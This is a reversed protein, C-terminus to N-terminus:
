RKRRRGAGVFALGLGLLALSAPEPVSPATTPIRTNLNVVDIFATTDGFVVLAALGRFSLTHDGVSLQGLSQNVLNWSTSVATIDAVTNGDVAVRVVQGPNYGPRLALAFSLDVTAANGLAFGQSLPDTATQLLAFHTGEYAALLAYSTTWGLGVGYTWGVGPVPAGSGVYRFTVNADSGFAGPTAETEFGSNVLPIVAAHSMAAATTFVVGPLVKKLVPIVKFAKVSQNLIKKTRVGGIM